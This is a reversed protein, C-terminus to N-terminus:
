ILKWNGGNLHACGREVCYLAFGTEEPKITFFYGYTENHGLIEVIDYEENNGLSNFKGRKPTIAKTPEKKRKM